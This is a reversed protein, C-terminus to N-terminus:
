NRSEILGEERAENTSQERLSLLRECLEWAAEVLLLQVAAWRQKGHQRGDIGRSVVGIQIGVGIRRKALLNAVEDRGLMQIRHVRELLKEGGVLLGIWVASNFWYM